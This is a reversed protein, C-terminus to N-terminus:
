DTTQGSTLYQDFPAETPVIESIGSGGGGGGILVGFIFIFILEM